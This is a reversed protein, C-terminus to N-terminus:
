INLSESWENWLYFRTFWLCWRMGLALSISHYNSVTFCVNIVISWVEIVGSVSAVCTHWTNYTIDCILCDMWHHVFYDRLTSFLRSCINESTVGGINTGFYGYQRPSEFPIDNFSQYCSVWEAWKTLLLLVCKILNFSVFCTIFHIMTHRM